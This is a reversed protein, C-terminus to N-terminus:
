FRYFRSREDRSDNSNEWEKEESPERNPEDEYPYPDYELDGLEPKPEVWLGMNTAMVSEKTNLAEGKPNFINYVM